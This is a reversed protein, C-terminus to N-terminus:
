KAHTECRDPEEFYSLHDGVHEVEVFINSDRDCSTPYSCQEIRKDPMLWIEDGVHTYSFMPWVYLPVSPVPDLKNVFRYYNQDTIRHIVNTQFAAATTATLVRPSGFTVFSAVHGSYREVLECAALTAMAAGLSHGTVYISWEGDDSKCHEDIADFVNKRVAYWAYQFGQHVYGTCFTADNWSPIVDVDQLFNEFVVSTGKFAVVCFDPQSASSADNSKYTLLLAKDDAGVQLASPDGLLPVMRQLSHTRYTSIECDDQRVGDLLKQQAVAEEKVENLQYTLLSIRWLFTQMEAHISDVFITCRHPEGGSIRQLHANLANILLGSTFRVVTYDSTRTDMSRVLLNRNNQIEITVLLPTTSNEISLAANRFRWHKSSLDYISGEIGESPLVFSAHSPYEAFSIMNDSRFDFHLEGFSNNSAYTERELHLNYCTGSAVLMWQALINSPIRRTANRMPPRFINTDPDAEHNVHLTISPDNFRQTSMSCVFAISIANSLLLLAVCVRHRAREDVLKEDLSTSRALEKTHVPPHVPPSQRLSSYMNANTYLARPGGRM